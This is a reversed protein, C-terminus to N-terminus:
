RRKILYKQLDDRAQKLDETHNGDIAHSMIALMSQMIINNSEELEKLRRNDNDLLEAHRKLAEDRETDPKKAKNILGIIIAGAGAITILSGCMALFIQWLQTLTFTM